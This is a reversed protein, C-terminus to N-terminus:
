SDGADLLRRVLPVRQMIEHIIWYSFFSFGITVPIMVCSELIWGYLNVYPYLGAGPSFYFLSDFGYRLEATIVLALVVIKWRNKELIEPYRVGAPLVIAVPWWLNNVLFLLIYFAGLIDSNVTRWLVAIVIDAAIVAALLLLSIRIRFRNDNKRIMRFFGVTLIISLLVIFAPVILNTFSLDRFIAGFALAVIDFPILDNTSM